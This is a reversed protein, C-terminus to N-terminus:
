QSKPPPPPPPEIDAIDDRDDALYFEEGTEGRRRWRDQVADVRKQDEPWPYVYSVPVGDRIVWIYVRRMEENWFIGAVRMKAMERWELGAPKPQGLTEFGFLFTGAALVVFTVTALGRHSARPMCVYTLMGLAATMLFGIFAFQM